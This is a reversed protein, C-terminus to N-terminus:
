TVVIKLYLTVHVLRFITCLARYSSLYHLKASSKAYLPFYMINFGSLTRLIRKFVLYRLVTFYKLVKTTDQIHNILM